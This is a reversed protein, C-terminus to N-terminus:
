AIYREVTFTQRIKLGADGIWSASISTGYSHGNWTSLDKDQMGIIQSPLIVGINPHLPITDQYMRKKGYKSLEARAMSRAPQESNIFPTVATPAMKDGATGERKVVAQIGQYEAAVIVANYEPKFDKERARQLVLNFPISVDPTLGAWEWSAYAYRPQILLKRDKMHSSVFGGAGEAIEQMAKIPTLEAYSWANAPVSWGLEDVLSWQLSFPSDLTIRQLEAQALQVSSAAITQNYSRTGAEEALMATVSRGKVQIDTTAFQQNSTNSEILFRWVFGNLGLEVEIYEDDTNVKSEETFPLSASFSWCWSDRDISLNLSKVEITAGDSVRKLYGENMIFYVKKNDLPENPGPKCREHTFNLVVNLPDVDAKKCCFHLDTSGVYDSNPEPAPPEVWVGTKPSATQQYRLREMVQLWVSANFGFGCTISKQIAQQWWSLNSRRQAINYDYRDAAVLSRAVDEQWIQVSLCSRLANSQYADGSTERAAGAQEWNLNQQDSFQAVNQYADGGAADLKQSRQHKISFQDKYFKTSQHATDAISAAPLTRQYDCGSDATTYRTVNFDYDANVSLVPAAVEAFFESVSSLTFRANLTLEPAAMEAAFSAVAPPISTSEATIEFVPQQINASIHVLANGTQATDATVSLLPSPISVAFFATVDKSIGSEGFKLVLNHPDKPELKKSFGLVLNHPNNEDM